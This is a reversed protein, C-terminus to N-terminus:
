AYLCCKNNLNKLKREPTLNFSPAKDAKLKYYEYNEYFLNAAEFFLESVNMGTKSSTEMFLDLKYDNALKEAKEKQIKREEELDAKNGILFIEIDDM